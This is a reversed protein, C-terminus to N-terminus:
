RRTSSTSSTGSTAPSVADGEDLRGQAWLQFIQDNYDSMVKWNKQITDLSARAKADLLSRDISFLAEFGTPATGTPPVNDGDAAAAVAGGDM